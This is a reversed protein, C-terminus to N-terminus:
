DSENDSEYGLADQLIRALRPVIDRLDGIVMFTTSLDIRALHDRAFAANRGDERLRFRRPLIQYTRVDRLSAVFRLFAGQHFESEARDVVWHRIRQQDELVVRRIGEIYLLDGAGAGALELEASSLRLLALRRLENNGDQNIATSREAGEIVRDLMRRAQQEDESDGFNAWDGTRDEMETQTEVLGTFNRQNDTGDHRGPEILRRLVYLMRRYLRRLRQERVIEATFIGSLLAENERELIGLYSDNVWTWDNQMRAAQRESRRRDYDWRPGRSGRDSWDDPSLGYRFRPSRSYPSRSRGRGPPSRSRGGAPGRSGGRDIVRHQNPEVIDQIYQILTFFLPRLHGEGPAITETEHNRYSAYINRMTQLHNSDIRMISDWGANRISVFVDRLESLHDYLEGRRDEIANQNGPSYIDDEVELAELIEKCWVLANEWQAEEDQDIGYQFIDNIFDEDDELLRECFLYSIDYVAGQAVGANRFRAIGGPRQQLWRLQDHLQGMDTRLLASDALSFSQTRLDVGEEVFISNYRQFINLMRRVPELLSRITLADELEQPRPESQLLHQLPYEHDLLDNAIDGYRRWFRGRGAQDFAVANRQFKLRMSFPHLRGYVDDYGPPHFGGGHGTFYHQLRNHYYRFLIGHHAFRLRRNAFMVRRNRNPPTLHLGNHLMELMHRASLTHLEMQRNRRADLPLPTRLRRIDEDVQALRTADAMWQFGGLVLAEFQHADHNELDWYRNDFRAGPDGPRFYRPCGPPGRWHENGPENVAVGCNPCNMFVGRLDQAGRNLEEARMAESETCIGERQSHHEDSQARGCILCVLGNCRRCENWDHRAGEVLARRQGIFRNCREGQTQPHLHPCFIRDSTPFISRYEDSERYIPVSGHSLAEMFEAYADIPGIAMGGIAPPWQAEVDNVVVLIQRAICENCYIDDGIVRSGDNEECTSCLGLAQSM